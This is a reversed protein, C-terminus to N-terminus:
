KLKDVDPNKFLLANKRLNTEVTPPCIITIFISDKTEMRLAEFFGTVAFKSSCYATRYILGIEGSYSSMVVIQGHSKKLHPLAYRVFENTLSLFPVYKTPYLYGFFNIEMMRKFM